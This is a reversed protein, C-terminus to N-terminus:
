QYSNHTTHDLSTQTGEILVPISLQVSYPPIPTSSTPSTDVLFIPVEVERNMLKAPHCPTERRAPSLCETM